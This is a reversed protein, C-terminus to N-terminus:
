LGEIINKAIVKPAIINDNFASIVSKIIDLSTRSMGSSLTSNFNREIALLQQNKMALFFKNGKAKSATFIFAILSSIKSTKATIRSNNDFTIPANTQHKKNRLRHALEDLNGDVNEENIQRKNLLRTSEFFIIKAKSKLAVFNTEDNLLISYRNTFNVINNSIRSILATFTINDTQAFSNLDAATHKPVTTPIVFVIIPLRKLFYTM